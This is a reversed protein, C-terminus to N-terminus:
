PCQPTLGTGDNENLEQPQQAGGWIREPSKCDSNGMGKVLNCSFEHHKEVQHALKHFKPIVPTLKLAGDIKLNSPWGAMWTGLNVFWQCAIDYSIISFLLTMFAQLASAFVFDMRVYREGKQLNGVTVIFEGRACSVTGISTYCLGRSFKMDAKALAAFGICMSIDEDSTHNLIYSNYSAKPVFYGWGIDLSPDQSFSSVLILAYLFQYELPANEWGELLNIGPRPCSPCLVALEGPKTAAVRDDAYARGGRKLM